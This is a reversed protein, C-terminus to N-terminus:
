KETETSKRKRNGDSKQEGDKKIPSFTLKGSSGGKLQNKQSFSILDSAKQFPRKTSDITETVKMSSKKNSESPAHITVVKNGARFDFPDIKAKSKEDVLHLSKNQIISVGTGNIMSYSSVFNLISHPLGTPLPKDNQIKDMMSLIMEGNKQVQNAAFGNTLTLVDLLNVLKRIKNSTSARNLELWKASKLTNMANNDTLIKNKIINCIDDVTSCGNSVPPVDVHRIHLGNYLEAVDILYKSIYQKHETQLYHLDEAHRNHFNTISNLMWGLDNKKINFLDLLFTRFDIGHKEFDKCIAEYHDNRLDPNELLKKTTIPDLNDEIDVQLMTSHSIDLAFMDSIPYESIIQSINEENIEQDDMSIDLDEKEQREEPTIPFEFPEEFTSLDMLFPKDVSAAFKNDYLEYNWEREPALKVLPETSSIWRFTKAPFALQRNIPIKATSIAKQNTIKHVMHGYQTDYSGPLGSMDYSNCWPKDPSENLWSDMEFSDRDSLHLAKIVSRRQRLQAEAREKVVKPNLRPMISAPLSGFDVIDM